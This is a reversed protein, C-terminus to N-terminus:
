CPNKIFAYLKEAALKHTKPGPHGRSGKDEDFKEVDEMPDLECTYVNKDGSEYKYEEIGYQILPPVLQLKIM